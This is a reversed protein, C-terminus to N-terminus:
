SVLTAFDKLLDVEETPASNQTAPTPNTSNTKNGFMSGGQGDPVGSDNLDGNPTNGWPNNSKNTTSTSFQNGGFDKFPDNNNTENEMGSTNFGAFANSSINESSPKFPDKNSFQNNFGGFPDKNSNKEAERKKKEEEATKKSEELARKLDSDKEKALM